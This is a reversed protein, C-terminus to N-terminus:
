GGNGTINYRVMDADAPTVEVKVDTTTGQPLGAGKLTVTVVIPTQGNNASEPLETEDLAIELVPKKEDDTLKIAVSRAAVNTSDENVSVMIDVDADFVDNNEPTVTIEVSGSTEGAKITVAPGNDDVSVRSDSDDVMLKIRFDRAPPNDMTATIEVTQAQDEAEATEMVSSPSVSLTVEHDDDRLTIIDSAAPDPNYNPDAKGTVTIMLDKNFIGDKVPVFSLNTSASKSGAPITVEMTGSVSYRSEEDSKVEFTVTTAKQVADGDALTATVQVIQTDAGDENVKDPSAAVKLTPKKEDLDTLSIKIDRANLGGGVSVVIDEDDDFRDNEVPTIKLTTKGLFVGASIEITMDGTVSYRSSNRSVMIPVDMANRPAETARVWVVVEQAEEDGKAESVTKSINPTMQDAVDPGFEAFSLTVDQDDDQITVTKTVTDFGAAKATITLVKDAFFKGDETVDFNLTLNVNSDPQGTDSGSIQITREPDATSTVSYRTGDPDPPTVEIKITTDAGDALSPGKLTATVVINQDDGESEYVTDAALAGQGATLTIDLKPKEEDDTLNIAVSRTALNSDDTVTVMISEDANFVSNDNTTITVEAEGSSKGADITITPSQDVQSITYRSNGTEGVQLPVMFDQPRTTPLTATITVKQVADDADDTETVTSPSVSLIVEQDDDRLMVIDTNTGYDPDSTGTVMIDLDPNYIGDKVPVFSLNTSASKSGAPITVEKTGSVSYLDENDSEVKFTVTTAKQVADGDALTATVQVIQTDAGEEYVKDPSVEVKLTPMKEDDDALKITITRANLGAGVSVVIDVTDDFRDNEVPTIKLTTKGSMEGASVEITMDGTVSYRSSNRSVSIPVDMANRPAEMVRAWVVVEQEEEEGDGEAVNAEKVLPKNTTDAPDYEGFSLTVDQDDDRVTVMKSVSDFGEAKATVTLMLDQFFKSDNTVYFQLSGNDTPNENGGSGIELQTNDAVYYRTTDPDAPKVEITVATPTDGAISPGKLTATVMVNTQNFGTTGSESVEAPALMMELVPKKEDDALKIKAPRAALDSDDTVEVTIDEDGDYFANNVTTVTVDTTGSNGGAAITISDPTTVNYRLGDSIELPIKFKKPRSTPLTATITVKQGEDMDKETVSTPSVSLIVEQDDDRLMVVDTDEGYDSKGTITIDLDDYFIADKAPEFALNTSNTTRGASITISKTGSVSYRDADTTDSVALTIKTATQVPDGTAWTATVQVIQTDAGDENIVKPSAAIKLEPKGEDMDRVTIKVSRAELGGGVSVTIEADADYRDNDVPTIKLTTKGSFEGATIEITMDGTVSYRSSNRSVSIPVDMANRPTEMARVWVVVEQEQDDTDMEAVSATKVLPFNSLDNPRYEKFSLTVDQDDDLLTVTTSEVFRAPDTKGSITIKLDDHYIGDDKPTFVLNNTMGSTDGGRITIEMTGTVEYRSTDEPAVTLTVTIDNETGVMNAPGDLTATITVTKAGDAEPIDTQNGEATNHDASLKIPTQAAAEEYTTLGAALAFTLMFALSYVSSARISNKFRSIYRM